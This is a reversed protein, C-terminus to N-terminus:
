QAQRLNSKMLILLQRQLDHFADLSVNHLKRLHRWLVWDVEVNDAGVALIMAAVVDVLVNVFLLEIQKDKSM